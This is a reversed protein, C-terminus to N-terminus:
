SAAQVTAPVGSGGTIIAGSNFTLAYKYSFSRAAGDFTADLVLIGVIGPVSSLFTRLASQLQNTNFIKKGLFSFWPFGASTDLFWESQALGLGDNITQVAVSAPDTVIVRPV